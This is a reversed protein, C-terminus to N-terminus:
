TQSKAVGHIRAWWAGRDMPNERRSYQLSTGYGIGPSKRVWLNFSHRRYQVTEKDMFGNHFGMYICMHIYLEHIHVCVYLIQKTLVKFIKESKYHKIRNCVQGIM